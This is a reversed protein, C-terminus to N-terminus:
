SMDFRVFPYWFVPCPFTSVEGVTKIETLLASSLTPELPASHIIPLRFNIMPADLPEIIAHDTVMESQQGLM